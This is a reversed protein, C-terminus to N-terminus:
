PKGEGKTEGAWAIGEAGQGGIKGHEGRERPGHDMGGVGLITADADVERPNIHSKTHGARRRHASRGEQMLVPALWLQWV